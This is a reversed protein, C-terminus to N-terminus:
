EKKLKRQIEFIDEKTLPFKSMFISALAFSFSVGLSLILGLYIQVQMTQVSQSSDFGILDLLFGILIVSLSQSLKYFFTMSGFYGGESRKGTELEELDITDAVMSAPITFLAGTGVGALVAYPIFLVFYNEVHSNILVLLMFYLSACISILLAILVSKRKDTKHITKIWFPQSLISFLFQIAIILSILNNSFSFTYTFVHFVSNNVFASGINIFMYTLIIFLFSRNRLTQYFSKFFNVIKLPEMENPSMRNLTPIFKRTSLYTMLPLVFTGLATFLAVNRYAEPNLQGIPYDSTPQFFIFMGLVMVFSIGLMFFVSRISQLTAREHYDSSLEAGLASYPTVLITIFTKYLLILSFLLVVKISLDLSPPINFLGLISIPVGIMGILLYLHRRGFRKSQTHDSIYGMIPDTLADWIISLGLAFGIITGPIHLIVSMFFILYSGVIQMSLGNGMDGLGYAIKDKFSIMNSKSKM